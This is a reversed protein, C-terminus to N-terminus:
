RVVTATPSGIEFTGTQSLSVAQWILTLSEPVQEPVSVVTTWQRQADVMGAGAVVHQVPDVVIRGLSTDLPSTPSPLSAFVTLLSNSPGVASVPFTAGRRALGTTLTTLERRITTGTRTTSASVSPDLVVTNIPGARIGLGDTSYTGDGGVFVAGESARVTSGSTAVVASEADLWGFPFSIIIEDGGEYYGGIVDLESGEAYVASGPGFFFSGGNWPSVVRCDVMVVNSRVVALPALSSWSECKVLLVEACDVVRFGSSGQPAGICRSVVVPGRCGEMFLAGNVGRFEAARLNDFVMQESEALPGVYGGGGFPVPTASAGVITLPKQIRLPFEYVSGSGAELLIVDGSTAADYAEMFTRHDVGPGGLDNVVWVRQAPLPALCSMGFVLLLVSMMWKM